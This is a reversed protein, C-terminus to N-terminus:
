EDVKNLIVRWNGGTGLGDVRDLMWTEEGIPFTDGIELTITQEIAAAVVLYVTVTGDGPAYVHQVALNANATRGPVNPRLVVTSTM